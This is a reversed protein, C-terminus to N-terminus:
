KAVSRATPAAGGSRAPAADASDSVLESNPPASPMATRADDAGANVAALQSAGCRRPDQGRGCRGPPVGEAAGRCRGPPEGALQSLFQEPGGALGEGLAQM